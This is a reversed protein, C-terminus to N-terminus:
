IRRKQRRVPLGTPRQPRRLPQHGNDSSGGQCIQVACCVHTLALRLMVAVVATLVTCRTRLLAKTTPHRRRCIHVTQKRYLDVRQRAVDIVVHQPLREALVALHPVDIYGFHVARGKCLSKRKHTVAAAILHLADQGLCRPVAALQPSLSQPVYRHLPGDGSFSPVVSVATSVVSVAPAGISVVAITWILPIVAIAAPAVVPVISVIVPPIVPIGTLIAIRSAAPLVVTAAIAM